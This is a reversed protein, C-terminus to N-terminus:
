NANNFYYKLMKNTIELVKRFISSLNHILSVFDKCRQMDKCIISVFDTWFKCNGRNSKIINKPYSSIVQFTSSYSSNKLIYKIQNDVSIRIDMMMKVSIRTRHHPFQCCFRKNQNSMPYLHDIYTALLKGFDKQFMKIYVQNFYNNAM